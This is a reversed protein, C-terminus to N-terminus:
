PDVGGVGGDDDTITLTVLFVGPESYVHTPTLAGSFSGGDGFTWLITHTDGAGPDTFTGTFQIEAGENAQRDPGAYVTPAVNTVTVPATDMGFTNNDDWVRLAATYFGNDTYAYTVTVGTARQQFTGIYLFDWEYLTIDNGPDGSARGDFLIPSGEAATYPGGARATPPVNTVTLVATDHLAGWTGTITWTGDKEATYRNGNWTGGAGPSITFVTSPTVDGLPNACLDASAATYTQVQGSAITANKPSISLTAPAGPTVTLTATAFLGGYTATVTWTGAVCATYRNAAWVGGAAPTVTYTGASTVDWSNGYADHATLTYPISAGASIAATPPALSLFAPDGHALVSTTETVALPVAGDRGIHAVNTLVAGGASSTVTVFILIQGSASAPLPGIMWFPATPAGGSPPPSAGAYLVRSDLVDTIVVGTAPASGANTYRLTYTLPAGAVVPDPGDGKSMQLNPAAVTTTISVTQPPVGDGAVTATNTLVAGDPMTAPVTVTLVIQGSTTESLNGIEWYPADPLGGTPEPAASVYVVSPDLTDTLVVGTVTESTPNGYTLTYVLFSGALVPDTSETKSLDLAAEQLTPRASARPSLALSLCFLGLLALLLPLITRM